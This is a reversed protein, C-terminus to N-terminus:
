INCCKTGNIYYTILHAFCFASRHHNYEFLSHLSSKPNALNSKTIERLRAIKATTNAIPRAHWRHTLFQYYHVTFVFNM